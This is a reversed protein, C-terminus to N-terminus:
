RAPALGLALSPALVSTGRRSLRRTGHAQQQDAPGGLLGPVGPAALNGPDRPEGVAAGLDGPVTARAASHHLPGLLEALDGAPVHACVPAWLLRM